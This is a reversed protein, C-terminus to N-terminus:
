GLPRLRRSRCISRFSGTKLEAPAVGEGILPVKSTLTCGALALLALASLRARM